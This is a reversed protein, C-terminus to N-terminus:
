MKRWIAGAHLGNPARGAILADEMHRRGASLESWLQGFFAYSRRSLRKYGPLWAEMGSISIGQGDQVHIDTICFIERVELPTTVIGQDILARNTKSLYDQGQRGTLERYIRGLIRGPTFRSAWETFPSREAESMRQRLEPDGLFDGNPDQLHLFAGGSPQLAAVSGLFDPLDPVHHLVSCTVILDFQKGPPIANLLGQHFVAETKWGAARRSAQRLMSPSTDLLDVTKIRGGLPGKLLCDSALGTGCGIDLLRIESPAAPNSLLWDEALLDFQRPLSAWMDRHASDYVESEFNHFLVNVAQHFEEPSCRVGHRDM